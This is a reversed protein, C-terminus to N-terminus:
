HPCEGWRNEAYRSAMKTNVAFVSSQKVACDNGLLSDDYATAYSMKSAARAITETM